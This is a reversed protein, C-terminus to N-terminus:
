TRQRSADVRKEVALKKLMGATMEPEDLPTFHGATKINELRSNKIGSHLRESIVPKLYIDSEGRVILTPLELGHIRDVIRMLQANDLCMALRLFGERGELTRLPRWFLQMMEDDVKERHYFGRDILARFVGLDLAAMAIHRIIPIRMSIIPQVPWYDYGVSNILSLTHFRDPSNVAMIQAVGGGIDQGVLHTKELGLIDMLTGLIEAQAALSYDADKPKDSDGCGLLDVAIVDFDGALLPIMDKWLFSYSTIGHVLLMPEGQGERRFAINFEGVSASNMFGGEEQSYEV